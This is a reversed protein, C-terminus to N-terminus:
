TASGPTSDMETQSLDEVKLWLEGKKPLKKKKKKPRVNSGPQRVMTSFSCYHGM